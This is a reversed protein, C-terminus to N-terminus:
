MQLATVPLQYDEDVYSYFASSRLIKIDTWPHITNKAEKSRQKQVIFWIATEQSSVSRITPPHWLKINVNIGKSWGSPDLRSASLANILRATTQGNILM